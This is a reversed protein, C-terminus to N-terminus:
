SVAERAAPAESERFVGELFDVQGRLSYRALVTERAAKGLRARLEPDGALQTLREHWQEPSDAFFGNKGDEVIELNSRHADRGRAPRPEHVAGAQFLVEV